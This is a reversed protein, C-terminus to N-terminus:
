GILKKVMARLVIVILWLVILGPLVELAMQLMVPVLRIIVALMVVIVVLMAAASGLDFSADDSM